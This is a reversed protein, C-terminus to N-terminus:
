KDDYGINLPIFTTHNTSFKILYKNNLTLTLTLQDVVIETFKYQLYVTIGTIFYFKFCM